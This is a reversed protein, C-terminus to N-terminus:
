QDKVISISNKFEVEVALANYRKMQTERRFGGYNLKEAIEAYSLGSIIGKSIINLRKRKSRRRRQGVQAKTLSM